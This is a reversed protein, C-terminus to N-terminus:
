DPEGYVAELPPRPPCKQLVEDKKFGKPEPLEVYPDWTNPWEARFTEFSPPPSLEYGENRLCPILEDLFYDYIVRLQQDTPPLQFRPHIPYSIRCRYTGALPNEYPWAAGNHLLASRPKGTCSCKRYM